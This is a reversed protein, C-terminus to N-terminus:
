RVGVNIAGEAVLIWIKKNVRSACFPIPHSVFFISNGIFWNNIHFIHVKIVIPDILSFQLEIYISKSTSYYEINGQSTNIFIIRHM